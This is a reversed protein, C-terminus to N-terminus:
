GAPAARSGDGAWRGRRGAPWARGGRPPARRTRARRRAPGCRVRARRGGRGRRRRGAPRPFAPRPFAPRSPAAPRRGGGGLWGRKDRITTVPVPVFRVHDHGLDTVLRTRARTPAAAPGTRGTEPLRPKVRIQRLRPGRSYMARFNRPILPFVQSPFVSWIAP